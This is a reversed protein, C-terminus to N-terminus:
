RERGAFARDAVERVRETVFAPDDLTSAHGGGPVATLSAGPIMAALLEAQRRLFGPVREGYLVATPVDIAAHDVDAGRFASLCRMVKAFEADTPLPAAAQVAAISGYDGSAGPNAREHLWAQAAQVREIGFLRVPLVTARLAALQLREALRDLDPTFTDVLVLGAVREPNRAAYTQAVLGGLSLGVLVPREVDLASLLAQLDDVYLDVTYADVVSPGTRGHGRLDYTVTTYEGALAEVQPTWLEANTVAAHVFVVPPGDGRREYYTEVGNTAVTGREVAGPEEPGPTGEM